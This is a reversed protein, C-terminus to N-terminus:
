KIQTEQYKKLCAQLADKWYPISLNFKQKIKRTIDAKASEEELKAREEPPM